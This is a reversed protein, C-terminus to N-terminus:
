NNWSHLGPNWLDADTGTAKGTGTDATSKWETDCLILSFPMGKGKEQFFCPNSSLSKLFLRPILKLNLSAYCTLYALIRRVALSTLSFQPFSMAVGRECFVMAFLAHVASVCVKELLQSHAPDVVTPNVNVYLLFLNTKSM